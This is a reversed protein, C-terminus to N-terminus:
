WGNALANKLVEEILIKAFPVAITPGNGRTEVIISVTLAREPQHNLVDIRPLYGAPAGTRAGGEYLGMTFAYAGGISKIEKTSILRVLKGQRVEFQTRDEPRSINWTNCINIVHRPNARYRRLIAMDEANGRLADLSPVSSSSDETHEAKM